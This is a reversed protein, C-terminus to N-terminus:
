VYEGQIYYTSSCRDSTIGPRGACVVGTFSDAGNKRATALIRSIENVSVAKRISSYVDAGYKLDKATEVAEKRYNEFTDSMIM